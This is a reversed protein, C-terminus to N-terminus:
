SALKREQAPTADAFAQGVWGSLKALGETVGTEARWGSARSFGSTDSVYWLQDGPRWPHYSVVPARGDMERIRRLLERLSLANQAGGGLNFAHGSLADINDLALLYARVADDVYLVDRVQYGDGYIAIPRGSSAAILFHAVWGQDETGYQHPGYLCSMRFVCSRLGFVRSYDIVYQDAVGKSCGYPSYFSLPTAESFGAARAPDRPVYREGSRQFAEDAILKGYVKNTSAFLVPATSRHKAVADLVNLTGRANIEFDAIPDAVSTTVAVQAALHIVGSADKVADGVASQDRIDGKVVRIRGQHRARLWDANETVRPRSFNDFVLVDEGRAALADCINTGLFGAGGTVLVYGSGRRPGGTM